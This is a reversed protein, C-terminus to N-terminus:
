EPVPVGYARLVAPLEGALAKILEQQSSAFPVLVGPAVLASRYKRFVPDESIALMRKLDGDSLTQLAERFTRDYSGDPVQVRQMVKRLLDRRIAVWIKDTVDPNRHREGEVVLELTPLQGSTLSYELQFTELRVILDDRGTTAGQV